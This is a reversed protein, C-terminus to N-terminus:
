SALARKLVSFARDVEKDELILTIETYTSVVEVVNIGEKALAKLFYFYLGPMYVNEKPLKITISSLNILQTIIKNFLIKKIKNQLEGSTIITTEFVGETITMFYEEEQESLEILEKHMEISFNTNAIVFETLNSRVILDNNSQFIKKFSPTPKIKNSLRRIAMLIAGTEVKKLLQKEVEPQIKRALASHNLIGEALGEELFLSSNIIKEVIEPITIM